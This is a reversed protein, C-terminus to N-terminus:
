TESVRPYLASRQESAHMAAGRRQDSPQLRGAAYTARRLWQVFGVPLIGRDALFPDFRLANQDLDAVERLVIRAIPRFARENDVHFPNRYPAYELDLVVSEASAAALLRALRSHAPPSPALPRLRWEIRGLGRVEFPSVAYYDNALFDRYNTGLPSLALTWPRRVTAFLLDQDGPRAKAQFPLETFRVACGLVDPWQRQKWWASSWRVLAPGALARAIEREVADAAIPHVEAVFLTGSPHFM